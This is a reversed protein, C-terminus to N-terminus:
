RDVKRMIARAEKETMHVNLLKFAEMLEELEIAGSRDEDILEFCEKLERKQDRTLRPRM